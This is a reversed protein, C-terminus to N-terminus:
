SFGFFQRHDPDRNGTTSIDGPLVWTVAGSGIPFLCVTLSTTPRQLRNRTHFAAYGIEM